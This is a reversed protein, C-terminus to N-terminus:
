LLFDEWGDKTLVKVTQFGGEKAIKAVEAFCFGLSARDHSDSSLLIHGKREHLDKLLQVSPYPEKRLGRYM